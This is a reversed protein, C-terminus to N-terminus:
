LSPRKSLLGQRATMERLSFIPRFISMKELTGGFTMKTPYLFGGEGSPPTMIHLRSFSPLTLPGYDAALM